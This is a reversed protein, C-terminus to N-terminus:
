HSNYNLNEIRFNFPALWCNGDVVAVRIKNLTIFNYNLIVVSRQHLIKKLVYSFTNM